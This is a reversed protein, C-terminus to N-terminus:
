TTQPIIDIDDLKSTAPVPRDLRRGHSSKRFSSQWIPTELVEGEEVKSEVFGKDRLRSLTLYMTVGRLRIGTEQFYRKRLDIGNIYDPWPLLRYLDWELEDAM